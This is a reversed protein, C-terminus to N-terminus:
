HHLTLKHPYLLNKRQRPLFLPKHTRQMQMMHKAHDMNSHDISDAMLSTSVLLSASLIALSLNKKSM